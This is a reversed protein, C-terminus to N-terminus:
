KRKNSHYELDLWLTFMSAIDSRYWGWCRSLSFGVWCSSWRIWISSSWKWSELTDFLWWKRYSIGSNVECYVDVNMCGEIVNVEYVVNGENSLRSIFVLSIACDDWFSNSRIFTLCGSNLTMTITTMKPVVSICWRKTIFLIM